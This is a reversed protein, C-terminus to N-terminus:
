FKGRIDKIKVNESIILNKLILINQKEAFLSSEEYNAKVNEEFKMDLTKNNYVGKKSKFSKFYNDDKFYFFADVFKM